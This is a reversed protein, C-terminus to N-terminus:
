TLSNMWYKHRIVPTILKAHYELPNSINYMKASNSATPHQLIEIRNLAMYCKIM